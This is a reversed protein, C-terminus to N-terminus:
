FPESPEFDIPLLESVRQEGMKGCWILNSDNYSDPTLQVADAPRKFTMEGSQFTVESYDVGNYTIGGSPRGSFYRADNHIIINNLLQEKNARINNLIYNFKHENYNFDINNYGYSFKTKERDNAWNKEWSVGALVLRIFHMRSGYYAKDRAKRIKKIEASKLFLTDEEFVYNGKYSTQMKYFTEWPYLIPQPSYSFASLFYTIKYGLKKNYIILPQNVTAELTKTEQHYTFNVDDPNTIICDKNRSGIFQTLFIKMQKERTTIIHGVMVERLVKAQRNLKVTLTKGNYSGITDPKYGLSSVILPMKTENTYLAFEGQTNSTTGKSSGKLYVSAKAIPNGTAADIVKGKVVQANVGISILLFASFFRCILIQKKM